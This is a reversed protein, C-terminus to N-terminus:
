VLVHQRRGWSSRNSRDANYVSYINCLRINYTRCIMKDDDDQDDDDDDDDSCWWWCFWAVIWRDIEWTM